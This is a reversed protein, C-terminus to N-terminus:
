LSWLATTAQAVRSVPYDMIGLRSHFLGQTHTCIYLVYLVIFIDHLVSCTFSNSLGLIKPYLQAERNRSSIVVPVKGELNPSYM